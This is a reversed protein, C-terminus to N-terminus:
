YFVNKFSEEELVLGMVNVVGKGISQELTLNLSPFKLKGRVNRILPHYLRMVFRNTHLNNIFTIIPPPPAPEV